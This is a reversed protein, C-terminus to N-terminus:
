RKDCHHPSPERSFSLLPRLAVRAESSTVNSNRFALAISPKLFPAKSILIPDCSLYTTSRDIPTHFPRITTKVLRLVDRRVQHLTTLSTYM